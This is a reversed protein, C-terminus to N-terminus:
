AALDAGAPQLTDCIIPYIQRAVYRKLCRIIEMKSMGEGTRRVVYSRTQEDYRM